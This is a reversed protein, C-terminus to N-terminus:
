SFQFKLFLGWKINASKKENRSPISSGNRHTVEKILCDYIAKAPSTSLGNQIINIFDDKYGYLKEIINLDYISGGM